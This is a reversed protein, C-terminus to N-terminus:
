AFVTEVDPSDCRSLGKISVALYGTGRQLVIIIAPKEKLKTFFIWIESSQDARAHGNIYAVKEIQIELATQSICEKRRNGQSLKLSLITAIQSEPDDTVM